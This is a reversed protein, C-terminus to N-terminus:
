GWPPRSGVMPARATEPARQPVFFPHEDRRLARCIEELRDRPLEGLIDTM